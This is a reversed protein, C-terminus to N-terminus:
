QGSGRTIDLLESDDSLGGAISEVVSQRRRPFLSARGKELASPVAAAMRGTTRVAHLGMDESMELELGERAVSGATISVPSDLKITL